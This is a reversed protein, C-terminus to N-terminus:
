YERAIKWKLLRKTLVSGLIIKLYKALTDKYGRSDRLIASCLEPAATLTNDFYKDPHPPRYDFVNFCKTPM